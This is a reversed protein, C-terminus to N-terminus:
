EASDFRRGPPQLQEANLTGTDSLEDDAPISGLEDIKKNAARLMVRMLWTAQKHSLRRYVDALTPSRAIGNTDANAILELENKTPSSFYLRGLDRIPWDSDRVSMSLSISGVGLLSNEGSTSLKGLICAKPIAAGPLTTTDDDM